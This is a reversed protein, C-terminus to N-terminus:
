LIAKWFVVRPEDSGAYDAVVLVGANDPEGLVQMGLSKHFAISRSNSPTTIAKVHTCNKSRAFATFHEFLKHALHRRRASSRVAIAHVYGVPATQSIFGFLYAVIAERDRIVFASNGFENIFMPHHLQRTDRGDWFDPLEKIIRDYDQKTCISIESPSAVSREM